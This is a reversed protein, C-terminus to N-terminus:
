SPAWRGPLVVTHKMLLQPVTDECSSACQRRFCGCEVQPCIKQVKAFGQIRGATPCRVKVTSVM